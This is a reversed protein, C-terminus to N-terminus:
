ETIRKFKAACGEDCAPDIPYLYLLGTGTIGTVNFKVEEIITREFSNCGFNLKLTLNSLSYTGYTCELFRTSTFTGDVKFTYTYSYSDEVTGWWSGQPTGVSYLFEVLKWTGIISNDGIQVDKKQSCGEIFFLFTIILIKTKM